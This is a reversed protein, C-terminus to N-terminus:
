NQLSTLKSFACTSICDWEYMVLHVRNPAAIRDRATKSVLASAVATTDLIRADAITITSPTVFEASFLSGSDRICRSCNEDKAIVDQEARVEVKVRHSVSDLQFSRQVNTGVPTLSFSREGIQKWGYEPRFIAFALLLAAIPGFVGIFVKVVNRM